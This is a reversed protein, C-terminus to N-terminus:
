LGDGLLCRVGCGALFVPVPLPASQLGESRKGLTVAGAFCLLLTALLLLGLVLKSGAHPIVLLSASSIM